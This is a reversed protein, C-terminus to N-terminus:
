EKQKGKIRELHTNLEEKDPYIAKAKEYYYRAKELDGKHEFSLGLGLLASYYKPDKRLCEQWLTNAEDYLGKQFLIWAYISTMEIDAPFLQYMKEAYYLSSTLDNKDRYVKVLQIHAQRNLPELKLVKKFNSIASDYEGLLSYLNGSLLLFAVDDPYLRLAEECIKLASSYDKLNFYGYILGSLGTKNAPYFKLFKPWIDLRVAFDKRADARQTFIVYYKEDKPELALIKYFEKKAEEWRNKNDLFIGLRQLAEINNQPIIYNLDEYEKSINKYVFEMIEDQYLLSLNLSQKFEELVFEKDMGLYFYNKGILFRFYSNTPNLFITKKFEDIAKNKYIEDISQKLYVEGLKFHYLANTPELCIAKIYDDRASSYSGEKLFLEARTYNYKSDPINLKIAKDLIQKYNKIREATIIDLPIRKIKNHISEAWYRSWILYEICSIIIPIFIFGSLATLKFLKM